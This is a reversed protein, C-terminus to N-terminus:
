DLVPENIEELSRREADIGYRWAILAAAVLLVAAFAYGAALSLASGTAILKGFLAPAALGGVGTGIAYFVAIALARMQIPFIESVTLYASSAAASAVFFTVSWCITQTTATLWGRAFLWASVLLLLGSLGYTLAIMRRRGLTDFLRGLLFPGFANGLAFPILYWGIHEPV